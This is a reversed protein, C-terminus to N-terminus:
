RGDRQRELRGKQWLRVLITMVTTYALTRRASIIEHTEGPTLWGGRDWLVDMVMAELEGTQLKGQQVARGPWTTEVVCHLLRTQPLGQPLRTPWRLVLAGASHVIPSPSRLGVLDAGAPTRRGLPGPLEADAHVAGALRLESSEHGTPVDSWEIVVRGAAGALDDAPGAGRVDDVGEDDFSCKSAVVDDDGGVGVVDDVYGIGDAPAEFEIPGSWGPGRAPDDLWRGRRGTPRSDTGMGSTSTM